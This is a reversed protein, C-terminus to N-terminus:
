VKENEFRKELVFLVKMDIGRVKQSTVTWIFRKGIWKDMDYGWLSAITKQSTRNPFYALESGDSLRVEMMLKRKMQEPNDLDPSEEYHPAKIVVFTKYSLTDIYNGSVAIGEIFAM